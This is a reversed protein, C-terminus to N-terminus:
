AKWKEVGANQKAAQEAVERGCDRLIKAERDMDCESAFLRGARVIMWKAAAAMGDHSGSAFWYNAVADYEEETLKGKAAEHAENM